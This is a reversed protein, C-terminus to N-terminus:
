RGSFTSPPAAITQFGSLALLISGVPCPILAANGRSVRYFGLERYKKPELGSLGALRTSTVHSTFRHSGAVASIAHQANRATILAGKFQWTAPKLGGQPLCSKEPNGCIWGQSLWVGASSACFIGSNKPINCCPPGEVDIYSPSLKSPQM